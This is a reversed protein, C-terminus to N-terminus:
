LLIRRVLPLRSNETLPIRTAARVDEYGSNNMYGHLVVPDEKELEEFVAKKVEAPAPVNPNGLSFDYVNEAGYKAAMIKGEEFM